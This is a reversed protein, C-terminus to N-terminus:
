PGVKALLGLLERESNVAFKRYLREVHYGFLWLLNRYFDSTGM